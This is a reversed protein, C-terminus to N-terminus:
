KGEEIGNAMRLRFEALIGLFQYKLWLNRLHALSLRCTLAKQGPKIKSNMSDRVNKENDKNEFKCAFDKAM